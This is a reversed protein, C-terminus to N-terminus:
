CSQVWYDVGDYDVSTYDQQLMEAAKEWDICNLPWSDTNKTAGLDEALEMAYEEFYSDRVMTGETGVDDVISQLSNLEDENEEDWDSLAQEADTVNEQADSIEEPSLASTDDQADSLTEQAETVANALDTRESELEEIRSQVDRLDIVCQGNNVNSM